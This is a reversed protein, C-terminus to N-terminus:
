ASATAASPTPASKTSRASATPASATPASATRAGAPRQGSTGTAAATAVPMDMLHEVRDSIQTTVVQMRQTLENTLMETEHQAAASLARVNSTYSYFTVAALPVVSLLFFAVILRIRLSMGSPEHSRSRYFVGSASGPTTFTRCCAGLRIIVVSHTRSSRHPDRNKEADGAQDRGRPGPEATFRMSLEDLGVAEGAVVGVVLLATEFEV